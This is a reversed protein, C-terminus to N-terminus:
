SQGRGVRRQVAVVIMRVAVGIFVFDLLIQVIVVLRASDTKPTVQGGSM